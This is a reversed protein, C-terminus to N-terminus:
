ARTILTASKYLRFFGYLIFVIGPLFLWWCFVAPIYVAVAAAVKAPDFLESVTCHKLMHSSYDIIFAVFVVAAGFLLVIWTVKDIRYSPNLHDHRLLLATLGIMLCSVILPAIVPGTWTTPILFLIDWTMLGEPWNLIVKLFVYYGIDWVAFIYFFWAVRQKLNNGALMAISLIIILTALERVIEVLAISDKMMALPFSFGGPYYLERLYVVVASELYSIALSFLTLWCLTRRVSTNKQM